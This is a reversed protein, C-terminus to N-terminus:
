RSGDRIDPIGCVKVDDLNWGGHRDNGETQVSQELCFRLRAREGVAAPVGHEASLWSSMNSHGGGSSAYLRVWGDGKSIETYARVRGGGHTENNLQYRVTVERLYGLVFEPSLLCYPEHAERTSCGGIKTGAIRGDAGASTDEGPDDCGASAAGVEWEQGFEWGFAEGSFDEALVCSEIQCSADCGDGGEQGGDDCQEEDVRRYGDGCAALKCDAVCGDSNDDNGDDCSEGDELEGNGCEADGPATADDDDGGDDDDDGDDDGDDDDDDDDGDDGGGDDDGDDDDGDDGGDDDDDDDGDDGDDDDDDDGDDDDDDGDDDDDDDDDDDGDDDDDDDDDDDGYGRGGDDDDDYDSDDDNYLM